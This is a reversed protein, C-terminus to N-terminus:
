DRRLLGLARGAVVGLVWLLVAVVMGVFTMAIAGGIGGWGLMAVLNWAAVAGLTGCIVIAIGSYIYLV